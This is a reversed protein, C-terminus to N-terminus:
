PKFPLNIEVSGGEDGTVTLRAGNFYSDALGAEELTFSVTTNIIAKCYDDKTNDILKAGPCQVPFSELCFDGVSFKFDHDKCDGGYKVDFEISNTKPNYRGEEISAAFSVSTFSVFLVALFLLKKM